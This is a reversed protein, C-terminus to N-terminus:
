RWSLPTLMAILTWTAGYNGLEWSQSLKIRKLCCPQKRVKPGRKGEAARPCERCTTNLQNASAGSSAYEDASKGATACASQDAAWNAGAGTGSSGDDGVLLVDFERGFGV